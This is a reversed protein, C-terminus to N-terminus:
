GCTSTYWLAGCVREFRPLAQTFASLQSKREPDNEDYPMLVGTRRVRNGQQAWAALPWAAAVGLLTIVNGERAFYSVSYVAPVNYRAAASIIPARHTVTFVDTVVVLGGGPERGLAIIAAEIEADSHVSATM